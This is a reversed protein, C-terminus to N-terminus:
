SRDAALRIEELVLAQVAPHLGLAVHGIGSLAINKAGSLHCSLQPAAINDHLSYISTILARSAVDESDALNRLWESPQGHDPDGCWQMQLGNIGMSFHALATGHHPTGVSIIKAIRRSGYQRLYARAALGGMSHALIIIQDKGSESCLNEVAKDISATYDDISALLPELDVAKHSIRSQLLCRRMSYWYGSNCGYGHILLVPLGTAQAAITGSFSKFPMHWSTVLMSAGFEQLLLRIAAKWALRSGAPLMSRHCYAILFTNVILAFRALVIADISLIWALPISAILFFDRLLLYLGVIIAIQLAILVIALLAIM